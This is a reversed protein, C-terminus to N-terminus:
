AGFLRLWEDVETVREPKEKKPPHRVAMLEVAFAEADVPRAGLARAAEQVARDSSVVLLGRRDRARHIQQRIAADADRAFIVRVRENSLDRELGGPPGGDFVVTARRRERYCYQRLRRVLKVEDDPDSLDIDPLRSILNHGDILLPM